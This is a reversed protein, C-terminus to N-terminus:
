RTVKKENQSIVSVLFMVLEVASRLGLYRMRTNATVVAVLARIQTNGTAFIVLSALNLTTESFDAATLDNPCENSSIIPIAPEESINVLSSSTVNWVVIINM